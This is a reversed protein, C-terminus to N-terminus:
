SSVGSIGVQGGWGREPRGRVWGGLQHSGGRQHASERHRFCLSNFVESKEGNSRNLTLRRKANESSVRGEVSEAM